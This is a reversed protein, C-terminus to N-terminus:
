FEPRRVRVMEDAGLLVEGDEDGDRWLLSVSGDDGFADDSDDEVVVWTGNVEILDGARVQSAGVPLDDSYGDLDGPTAAADAELEPSMGDEDLQTLQQQRPRPMPGRSAGTLGLMAMPSSLERGSPGNGEGPNATLPDLDPHESAKIWEANLYETFTPEVIEGSDLDAQAEPARILLREQVSEAPRARELLEAEESGGIVKAPDPTRYCQAEVVDGVGNIAMSRGRQGRPLAVGTVPNDWMMQASQPSIRGVSIRQTFNERMEGTLIEADGRQTSMVLHVRSTRGKRALSGLEALTAPKNPDGKVKITSYWSTLNAKLDTFEDVFVMVPTFDDVRAQGRTILQYRHEMLEWARHIVAVQEEISSAVVQVNPWDRFGLFEVAKGDAIWVPWGFQTINVLMAHTTSTKGSGTGGVILCQPSIAPKWVLVEGDEDVGFPIEVAEYNNLPDDNPPTIPELWVCDPLSPRVEFRVRDGEMDWLARWRGGPLTSSVTREIRNRYGSAVLRTSARHTLEMAKVTGAEDLDVDKVTATPGILEGVIRLAREKPVEVPTSDDLQSKSDLKLVLLGRVRDNRRLRYSGGLHTRATTAIEAAFGPPIEGPNPAYQVKISRPRGPWGLSWRRATVRPGGARGGLLPVLDLSLLSCLDSRRMALASQAIAVVAALVGAALAPWALQPYGVLPAAGWAFLGLAAWVLGRANSTTRPNAPATATASAM